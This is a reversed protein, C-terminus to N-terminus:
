EDKSDSEDVIHVIAGSGVSVALGIVESPTTFVFASTLAIACVVVLESGSGTVEGFASFRGVAM